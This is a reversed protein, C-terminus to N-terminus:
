TRFVHTEIGFDCKGAELIVNEQKWFTIKANLCLLKSAMSVLWYSVLFMPKLALIVNEHKWFTIKANLCLLKSAM